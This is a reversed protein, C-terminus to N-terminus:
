RARAAWQDRSLACRLFGAREPWRADEAPTHAEPLLGIKQMVRLSARNDPHCEAFLRRLGLAEFGFVLVAAAAEAAYGKGWADRRTSYWLFAEDAGDRARTLGIQVLLADDAQRVGAFAWQRRDAAPKLADHDAQVLFALTAAPTIEPRSRYRLVEPDGDIRRLAAFDPGAFPRLRLRPMLLPAPAAGATM